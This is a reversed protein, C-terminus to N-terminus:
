AGPNQFRGIIFVILGIPLGALGALHLFSMQVFGGIFIFALALMIILFGRLENKM